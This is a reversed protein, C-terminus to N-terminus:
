EPRKRYGKQELYDAAAKLVNGGGDFIIEEAGDLYVSGDAFLRLRIVRSETTDKKEFVVTLRATPNKNKM